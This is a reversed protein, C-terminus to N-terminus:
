NAPAPQVTTAGASGSYGPVPGVATPTQVKLKSINPLNATSPSLITKHAPAPQTAAQASAAFGVASAGLAISIAIGAGWRKASTTISM